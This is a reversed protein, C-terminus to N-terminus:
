YGSEDLLEDLLRQVVENSSTGHDRAYKALRSKTSPRVVLQLRETKREGNGMTPLHAPAYKPTPTGTHKNKKPKKPPAPTPTDTDTSEQEQTDTDTVTLTDAYESELTPTATYENEPTVITEDVMDGFNTRKRKVNKGM